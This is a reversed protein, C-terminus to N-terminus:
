NSDDDKKKEKKFIKDLNERYKKWDRVPRQRSGKGAM